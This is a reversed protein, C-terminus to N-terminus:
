VVEIAGRRVEVHPAGGVRANFAANATEQRSGFNSRFNNNNTKSYSNNRTTAISRRTRTRTTSLVLALVLVLVLADNPFALDISGSEHKM